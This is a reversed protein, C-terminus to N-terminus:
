IAFFSLMIKNNLGGAIIGAGFVQSSYAFHFQSAMAAGSSIGSVTTMHPDVNYNGLYLINVHRTSSVIKTFNSLRQTFVLNVFLLITLSILAKEM